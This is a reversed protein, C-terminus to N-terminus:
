IWYLCVTRSRFDLQRDVSFSCCKKKLVWLIWDNRFESGEWNETNVGLLGHYVRLLVTCKEMRATQKGEPLECCFQANRNDAQRRWLLSKEFSDEILREQNVISQLVKNRHSTEPLSGCTIEGMVNEVTEGIMLSADMMKARAGWRRRGHCSPAWLFM